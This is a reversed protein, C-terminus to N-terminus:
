PASRREWPMPLKGTPSSKWLLSRRQWRCSPRCAAFHKSSGKGLRRSSSIIPRLRGPSNQSYVRNRVSAASITSQWTPPSGGRGLRSIGDTRFQQRARYIRWLTEVTLDEVIDPDRVIRVIWAYIDGQSQRVLAEFADIDGLAFRRLLDM